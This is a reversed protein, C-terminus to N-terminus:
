NWASFLQDSVKDAARALSRIVETKREGIAPTSITCLALAPTSIRPASVPVALRRFERAREDAHRLRRVLDLQQTYQEWDPYHGLGMHLGSRFATQRTRTDTVALFIQSAAHSARMPIEDDLAGFGPPKRLISKFALRLSM